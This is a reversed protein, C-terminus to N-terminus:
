MSCRHVVHLPALLYLSSHPSSILLRHDIAKALCGFEEPEPHPEVVELSEKQYPGPRPQIGSSCAPDQGFVALVAKAWRRRDSQWLICHWFTGLWEEFEPKAEPPERPLDPLNSVSEQRCVDAPFAKCGRLNKAGFFPANRSVGMTTCLSKVMAALHLFFIGRGMSSFWSHGTWSREVLEMNQDELISHCVNTPTLGRRNLSVM